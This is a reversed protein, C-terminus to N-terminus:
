KKKSDEGPSLAKVILELKKPIRGDMRNVNQFVCLIDVMIYWSCTVIFILGGTHVGHEMLVLDLLITVVLVCIVGVKRLIQKSVGDICPANKIVSTIINTVIDLTAIMLYIWFLTGIASLVYAIVAFLTLIVTRIAYGNL